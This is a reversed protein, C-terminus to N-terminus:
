RCPRPSHHHGGGRGGHDHHHLAHHLLIHCGGLSLLPAVFLAVAFLRFLKGLPRVRKM